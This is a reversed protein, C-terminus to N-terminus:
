WPNTQRDLCMSPASLRTIRTGCDSRGSRKYRTCSSHPWVDAGYVRRLNCSYQCQSPMAVSVSLKQLDHSVHAFVFGGWAYVLSGSSDICGIALSNPSRIWMSRSLMGLDLAPCTAMQVATSAAVPNTNARGHRSLVLVDTM